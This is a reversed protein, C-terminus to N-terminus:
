NKRNERRIKDKYKKDSKRNSEKKRKIACEDCYSKKNNTKEILAGCEKCRKYEKNRGRKLNYYEKQYNLMEDYMEQAKTTLVIRKKRADNEEPLKNILDSLLNTDGNNNAARVLEACSALNQEEPPRTAKLYYILAKMLMESMDDWFPDSSKGGDGQGKVITNAIIDVDIENNIHHLPNYGDSNVPHVLNLVKIDYGKSKFLEVLDDSAGGGIYICDCWNLLEDFKEYDKESMLYLNCSLNSVLEKFRSNSKEYDSSAYPCYLLKPKEKNTLSLIHQEIKNVKVELNSKGGILAYVAM